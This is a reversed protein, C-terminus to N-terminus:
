PEVMVRSRRIDLPHYADLRRPSTRDTAQEIHFGVSGRPVGDTNQRGRIALVEEITPVVQAVQVYGPREVGALGVVAPGTTQVRRVVHNIRALIERSNRPAPLAPHDPLTTSGQM